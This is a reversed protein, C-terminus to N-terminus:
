IDATAEEDLAGGGGGGGPPPPRRRGVDRAEAAETLPFVRGYRPRKALPAGFFPFPLALSVALPPFDLPLARVVGYTRAAGARSTRHQGDIPTSRADRTQRSVFIVDAM